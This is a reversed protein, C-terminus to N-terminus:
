GKARIRYVKVGHGPVDATLLDTVTTVEGTWLDKAEYESSFLTEIDPQAILEAIDQTFGKADGSKNFFCVALEGDSLPKILVDQLVNTSIRRCQKGLPDQDLAIL